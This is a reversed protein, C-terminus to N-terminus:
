VDSDSKATVQLSVDSTVDFCAEAFEKILCSTADEVSLM